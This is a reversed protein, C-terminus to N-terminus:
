IYRIVNSRITLHMYIIIGRNIRCSYQIIINSAHLKKRVFFTLDFYILANTNNYLLTQIVITIETYM